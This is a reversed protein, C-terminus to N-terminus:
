KLSLFPSLLILSSVHYISSLYIAPGSGISRGVVTIDTLNFGIVDKM